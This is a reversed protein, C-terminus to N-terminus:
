HRFPIVPLDGLVPPLDRAAAPVVPVKLAPVPIPTVDPLPIAPLPVAPGRDAPVPVPLPSVSPVPLAPVPLAPVPVPLRDPEPTLPETGSFKNGALEPNYPLVVPVDPRAPRPTEGVPGKAGPVVRPEMADPFKNPVPADSGKPGKTVPPADSGGKPKAPVYPVQPAAAGPPAAVAGYGNACAVETGYQFGSYYDRVLGGGMGVLYKRDRLFRAPPVAPGSTGPGCTACENFGDAFGTEFEASFRHAPHWNRVAQWAERASPRDGSGLAAFRDRLGACGTLVPLLGAAVLTFWRM